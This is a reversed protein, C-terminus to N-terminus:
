GLLSGTVSPVLCPFGEAGEGHLGAQALHRCVSTPDFQPVQLLHLTWLQINVILIYIHIYM